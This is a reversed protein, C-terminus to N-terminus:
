DLDAQYKDLLRHLPLYPDETMGVTDGLEMVRDPAEAGTEWRPLGEGNPDGTKVFNVYYRVMVESLRRDAADYLKPHSELCGFFYPLEGAHNSGMGRNDKTFWYTYVPRGQETLLKGWCYHSYSFWAASVAEDYAGKADGGRDLLFTKYFPEQVRPPVAAAAEAAYVGYLLELSEAYNDKTVKSGMCFLDAEHVNFGQLLATEHNAGRAYTLYPQETVAWGDVTMASNANGTNVLKEAPVARLDAINKAGFEERIARGTQLAEDLTRFTHYPVRPTIGSSEAIARVFLGESLPSVCLAGVSSAGASEGAITVQDPDGGFAAINEQVWKLAQIQDLLGYNGTTGNPSEKQLDEDAFYGFVGLRYAFNVVIIGQKALTEGNYQDYWTQGTTLSGGHVYVLVPLGSVDGAPKWINLYLSDESMPAICNNKTTIEFTHYVFIEALSDVIPSSRPQMSMPAFTDCVRVGEWSEPPQPERWRLDGVPPKAYPIGAYVEVTEDENYVGTLQGQAVTVVGTAKPNKVNVAPVARIPPYSLRFVLVALAMAGAFGLLRWGFGRGSLLKLRLVFWGALVLILLGWGWLTNRDLEFLLVWLLSVLVFLIWFGVSLKRKKMDCRGKGGAAPPTNKQRYYVM